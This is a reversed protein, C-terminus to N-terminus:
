LVGPNSRDAFSADELPLVNGVLWKFRGYM